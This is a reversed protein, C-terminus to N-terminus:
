GNAKGETETAQQRIEQILRFTQNGALKKVQIRYAPNPQYVGWNKEGKEIFRMMGYDALRDLAYQLMGALSVTSQKDGGRPTPKSTPLLLIAHWVSLLDQQGAEPDGPTNAKCVKCLGQVFEVVQDVTFRPRLIDDDQDLVEITPFCFAAIALMLLGHIVREEAKMSGKYDELKFAFPSRDRGAIFVGHQSYGLINIQLGVALNEFVEKFRESTYLQTMLSSYRKNQFPSDNPDMAYRLLEGAEQAITVLESM